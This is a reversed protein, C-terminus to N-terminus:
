RDWTDWHIEVLWNNGQDEIFTGHVDPFSDGALM